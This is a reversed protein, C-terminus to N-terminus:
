NRILAFTGVQTKLKGSQLKFRLEYLYTGSPMLEKGIRGNWVPNQNSTHVVAGWRNYISIEFEPTPLGFLELWDNMGNGDPSFAKPVFVITEFTTTVANSYSCISDYCYRTRLHIVEGLGSPLELNDQYDMVVSQSSDASYLLLEKKATGLQNIPDKSSLSVNNGEYSRDVLRLTPAAIVMSDLANDCTDLLHLRYFYQRSFSPPSDRFPGNTSTLHNFANQSAGRGIDVKRSTSLEPIALLIQNDQVSAYINQFSDSSTPSYLCIEQEIVTSADCANLQAITVCLSDSDFSPLKLQMEISLYGTYLNQTNLSNTAVAISYKALPLFNTPQLILHSQNLCGPAILARSFSLESQTGLNVSISTDDCTAFSQDRLGKIYIKGSSSSFDYQVTNPLRTTLSDRDNFVILYEDYFEDQLELSIASQSCQYIEYQPPTSDVVEFTLTDTKPVIDRGIVQVIEYIGPESYTYFTDSTEVQGSEYFYQRSVDGFSDTSTIHITVPACGEPFDIAFRGLQSSHQAM